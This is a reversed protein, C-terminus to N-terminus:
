SKRTGGWKVQFGSREFNLSRVSRIKSRLPWVGCYSSGFAKSASSSPHSEPLPSGSSQNLPKMVGDKDFEPLSRPCGGRYRDARPRKIVVILEM